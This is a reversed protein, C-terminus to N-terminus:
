RRSKFEQSFICYGSAIKYIRYRVYISFFLKSSIDRHSSSRAPISYKLLQLIVPLGFVLMISWSFWQSLSYPLLISAIAVGGTILTLYNRYEDKRQKRVYTPDIKDEISRKLEDPLTTPEGLKSLERETKHISIILENLYGVQTNFKDLLVARRAENPIDRKIQSQLESVKSRTEKLQAKRQSIGKDLDDREINKDALQFLYEYTRQTKNGSRWSLYGVITGAVGIVGFLLSLINVWNTVLIESVKQLM